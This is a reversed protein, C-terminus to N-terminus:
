MCMDNANNDGEKDYVYTDDVSDITDNADAIIAELASPHLESDPAHLRDALTTSFTGTQFYSYIVSQHRTFYSDDNPLGTEKFLNELSADVGIVDSWVADDLLPIWFFNAEDVTTITSNKHENNLHNCIVRGLGFFSQQNPVDGEAKIAFMRIEYGRSNQQKVNNHYWHFATPIFDLTTTWPHGNKCADSFIKEGFYNTNQGPNRPELRFLITYGSPAKIVCCKLYGEKSAFTSYTSAKSSKIGFAACNDTGVSNASTVMASSLVAMPRLVTRRAAVTTTRTHDSSSNNTASSPASTLVLSSPGATSHLDGTGGIPPPHKLSTGAKKATPKGDGTPKRGM